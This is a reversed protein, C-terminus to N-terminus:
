EVEVLRNKRKENILSLLFAREESGLDDADIVIKSDKKNFM